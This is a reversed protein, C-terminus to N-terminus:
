EFKKEMQYQKVAKVTNNKFDLELCEQDMNFAGPKFGLNYNWKDKSNAKISDDWGFWEPAGL